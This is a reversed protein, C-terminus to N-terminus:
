EASSIAYRSSGRGLQARGALEAGQNRNIYKGDAGPAADKDAVPL